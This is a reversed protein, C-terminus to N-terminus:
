IHRSHIFKDRGKCIQTPLSKRGQRGCMSMASPDRFRMIFTYRSMSGSRPPYRVSLAFICKGLNSSNMCTLLRADTYVYSVTYKITLTSISIYVLTQMIINTEYVNYMVRISYTYVMHEYM